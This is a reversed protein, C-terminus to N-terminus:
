KNGKLMKRSEIKEIDLVNIYEQKENNNVDIKDAYGFNNKLNVINMIVNTRGLSGYKLIFTEVKQKAMVCIEDYGQREHYQYYTFKTIGIHDCLGSLLYPERITMKGDKDETNKSDCWEFYGMIAEKFLEPTPYKLPRCADTYQSQDKGFVM